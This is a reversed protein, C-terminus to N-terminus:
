KSLLWDAVIRAADRNERQRMAASMAARRAPDRMLSRITSLLDRELEADPIVVAAGAKEFARANHEQHNDAAFPYPVLVAPMGLHSVEALTSAGARAVVLEAAAYAQEMNDIYELVKVRRPDFSAQLEEAKVSKGTQWLVNYGDALLQPVATRMAENIARAGLSGGFALLTSRDPELGFFVRGAEAELKAGLGRRVPTGSEVILHAASFDKRSEPYALFVVKAVRSLLKNAAGGISNIELLAVPVGNMWAAIGAPVSLYAGGGLFASPQTERILSSCAMVAKVLRFPFSLMSSLTRRPAEIDIGFFEYGARPVERAEIRERTGIFIIRTDPERQRIEDAVAITPYLHGGTGGSAIIITRAM